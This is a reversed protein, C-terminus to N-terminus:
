FFFLQLWLSGADVHKRTFQVHLYQYLLAPMNKRREFFGPTKLFLSPLVIIIKNPRFVNGLAQKRTTSMGVQSQSRLWSRSCIETHLYAYKLKSLCQESSTKNQQQCVFVNIVTYPRAFNIVSKLWLLMRMNKLKNVM